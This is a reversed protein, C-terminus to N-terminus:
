QKPNLQNYLENLAATAANLNHLQTQWQNLIQAPIQTTRTTYGHEELWAQYQAARKDREKPNLLEKVIIREM